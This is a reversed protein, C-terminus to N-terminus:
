EDNKGEQENIRKTALDVLWHTVNDGDRNAGQKIMAKEEDSVRMQIANTKMTLYFVVM